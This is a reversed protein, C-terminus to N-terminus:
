FLETCTDSLGNEQIDCHLVPAGTVMKNRIDMEFTGRSM